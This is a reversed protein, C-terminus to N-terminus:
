KSLTFDWTWPGLVREHSCLPFRIACYMCYWPCFMFSNYLKWHLLNPKTYLIFSFLAKQKLHQMFSTLTLICETETKHLNSLLNIFCKRDKKVLNQIGLSNTPKPVSLILHFM